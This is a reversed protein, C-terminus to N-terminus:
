PYKRRDYICYHPISDHLQRDQRMVVRHASDGRIPLGNEACLKSWFGKGTDDTLSPASPELYEEPMLAIVHSLRERCERLEAQLPAIQSEISSIKEELLAKEQNLNITDMVPSRRSQVEPYIICCFFIIM